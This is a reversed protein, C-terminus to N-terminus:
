GLPDSPKLTRKLGLISVSIAEQCDNWLSSDFPGQTMKMSCFSQNLSFKFIPLKFQKYDTPHKSGFSMKIENFVFM